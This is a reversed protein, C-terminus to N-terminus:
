SAATSSDISLHRRPGEYGVKVAWRTDSDNWKGQWEGGHEHLNRLRVLRANTDMTYSHLSHACGVM